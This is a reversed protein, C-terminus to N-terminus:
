RPEGHGSLAQDTMALYRDAVADAFAPDNIDTDFEEFEIDERLRERLRTVFLDDDDPAAFPGDATAYSDFGLRPVMVVTRGTAENLREAVLDAVRQLELATARVATVQENHRILPRSSDRFEAPVTDVPGFNIVEIAGPVVVQPYGKRGATRLREPGADFIGGLLADTVEKITFDVVGTILGSELLNELSRGGTGVAHFVIADYGAAELREVVRLAGRTTVGLMSVGVAPRDVEAEESATNPQIMGALANAANRLIPRSIRNLGAIDTVSHMVCLDTAGVYASVDGSAMTSVLIKPVGLPLTRMVGSILNSGGSGGLGLVGDCRGQERLLAVIATAGRRMTDLAVTRTDSGETAFRLAELQVGVKACVESATIDPPVVPDGLVGVDILVVEVGARILVSRVFDYERGKTDLAGILVATAM